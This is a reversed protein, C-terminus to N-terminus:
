SEPFNKKNKRRKRKKKSDPSFFFSAGNYRSFWKVWVLCVKENGIAAVSSFFRRVSAIGALPVHTALIDRRRSGLNKNHRAPTWGVCHICIGEGGERGRGGSFSVRDVVVVAASTLSVFRKWGRRGEKEKERKNKKNGRGRKGRERVDVDVDVDREDRNKRTTACVCASGFFLSLASPRYHRVIVVRGDLWGETQHHAAAVAAANM